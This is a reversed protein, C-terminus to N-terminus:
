AAAGTDHVECWTSRGGASTGWRGEHEATLAQVLAMGRGGTDDPGAERIVAERDSGDDVQLRVVASKPRYSLQVSVPEGPKGYALANALLEGAVVGMDAVVEDSVELLALFGTVFRRAWRADLAVADVPLQASTNVCAAFGAASQVPTM